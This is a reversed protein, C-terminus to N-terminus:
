SELVLMKNMDVMRQIRSVISEGVDKNEFRETLNNLSINSTVWIRTKCDGAYVHDFVDYLMEGATETLRRKCLDDIMLIQNDNILAYIFKQADECAIRCIRAYATSLESFRYFKCKKGKKVEMLLNYAVSRTKGQNNKGVVFLSKDRNDYIKRGLIGNGIEKDWHHFEQPINAHRLLEQKRLEFQEKELEIRKLEACDDCLHKTEDTKVLGIEWKNLMMTGSTRKQCKPCTNSWNVATLVDDDEPFMDALAIIEAM